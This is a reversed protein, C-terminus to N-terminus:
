ASSLRKLLNTASIQKPAKYLLPFHSRVFFSHVILPAVMGIFTGLALHAPISEIGLFKRLVIRVGSGAIIHMLYIAMSAQGVYVLWRVPHRLYEMLQCISVVFFISILALTLSYSGKQDYTLGMKAHFIYQAVLFAPISIIASAKWFPRSLGRLSSFFVGFSFYVFNTFIYSFANTGNSPWICYTAAALLAIALTFKASSALHQRPYIIAAVCFVLFLAYLFWFQARPNWLALVQNATVNGNTYSSLLTEIGGQLLSWLVYPYFITDIKSAILGSAGRRASESLFLGSLFFFLPMHFSYIISDVLAFALGDNFMGASHLGRAVHGYVVLIIGIGKAYDVWVQRSEM